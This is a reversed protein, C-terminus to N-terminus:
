PTDLCNTNWINVMHKEGYTKKEMHKENVMHKEGYTKEGHKEMHKKERCTQGSTEMHKWWEHEMHKSNKWVWIWMNEVQKQM